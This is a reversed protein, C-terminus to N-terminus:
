YRSNKANKAQKIEIENSPALMGKYRSPASAKQKIEIESTSSLMGNKSYSKSKKAM